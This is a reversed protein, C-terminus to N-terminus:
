ASNTSTNKGCKIRQGGDQMMVAVHDRLELAFAIGFALVRMQIRCPTMIIKAIPRNLFSRAEAPRGDLGENPARGEIGRRRGEIV